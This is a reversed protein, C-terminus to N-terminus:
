RPPMPAPWADPSMTDHAPGARKVAPAPGAARHRRNMNPPSRQWDDRSSSAAANLAAIALVVISLGYTVANAWRAWRKADPAPLRSRASRAEVWVSMLYFPVCLGAAALYITSPRSGFPWAILVPLIVVYAAPQSIPRLAEFLPGGLFGYLALLLWTAPIGALTSWANAKAALKFADGFRLGFMRLAMYAEILVIPLFAAWSLPWVVALMPVGMNAQAPAPWTAVL